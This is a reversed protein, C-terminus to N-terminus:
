IFAAREAASEPEGAQSFRHGPHVPLSDTHLNGMIRVVDVIAGVYASYVGGGAMQTAAVSGILDSSAGSTLSNVVSQGTDM